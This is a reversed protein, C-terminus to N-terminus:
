DDPCDDRNQAHCVEALAREVVPTIGEVIVGVGRENPHIGDELNLEAKGVVGELFFPYLPVAHKEALRPYIGDFSETYNRGLNRPAKMGALIPYAGRDKVLTLIADLYDETRAPDLGRLADNAGLEVLVLDPKDALNWELRALGGSTTSGSVSANTVRVPWGRKQLAQELRVPFAQQSALRYGATLSDGLVMLHLSSEDQSAAHSLAPSPAALSLLVLFRFLFTMMDCDM